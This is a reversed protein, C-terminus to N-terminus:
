LMLSSAVDRDFQEIAADTLADAAWATLSAPPLTVAAAGCAILKTLVEPSKISAALLSPGGDQLSVCAHMLPWVDRGDAVLRGIYPAVYRAGCARAWLLQAPNSLGTLLFAQNQAKMAQIVELWDPHCPLKITLTVGLDSATRQLSGHWQLAEALDTRPLQLMLEALGSDAVAQVLGTYSGLTVPLGAQLVLTPNTTIGLVPPCGAPLHWSSAVASDLFVNLGTGELFFATVL